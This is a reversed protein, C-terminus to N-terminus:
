GLYLALGYFTHRAAHVCARSFAGARAAVGCLRDGTRAPLGAAARVADASLLHKNIPYIHGEIKIKIPANPTFFLDSAKREVMLRFLPRTNLGAPGGGLDPLLSEDSEDIKYDIAM